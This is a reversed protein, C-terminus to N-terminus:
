PTREGMRHTNAVYDLLDTHAGCYGLTGPLTPILQPSGQHFNERM